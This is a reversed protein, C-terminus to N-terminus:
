ITGSPRIYVHVEVPRGHVHADATACTSTCQHQRALAPPSLAPSPLAPALAPLRWSRGRHRRGDRGHHTRPDVPGMGRGEKERGEGQSRLGDVAAAAGRRVCRHSRLTPRSPPPQRGRRPPQVPPSCLCVIRARCDTRARCGKSVLALALTYPCACSANLLSHAGKRTSTDRRGTLFRVVRPHRTVLPM